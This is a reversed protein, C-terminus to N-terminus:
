FLISRLKASQLMTRDIKARCAGAPQAVLRGLQLANVIDINLNLYLFYNDSFSLLYCCIATSLMHTSVTELLTVKQLQM